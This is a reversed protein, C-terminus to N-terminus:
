TNAWTIMGKQCVDQTTEVECPSVMAFFGSPSLYSGRYLGRTCRGCALFFFSSLPHRAKQCRM